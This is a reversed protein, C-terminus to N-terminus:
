DEDRCYRAGRGAEGALCAHRVWAGALGGRSDARGRLRCGLFLCRGQARCRAQLGVLASAPALWLDERGPTAMSTRPSHVRREKMIDVVWVHDQVAPSRGARYPHVVFNLIHKELA